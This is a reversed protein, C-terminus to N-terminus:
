ERMYIKDGILMAKGLLEATAEPGSSEGTGDIKKENMLLFHNLTGEPIPTEGSEYRCWTSMSVNVQRRAQELTLGLEKRLAKLQEGNM